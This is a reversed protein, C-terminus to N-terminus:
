VEQFWVEANQEKRNGLSTSRLEGLKIAEKIARDWESDNYKCLSAITARIRLQKWTTRGTKKATELLATRIQRSDVVEELPQNEFLMGEVCQAEVCQRRAKVMARNMLDVADPYRSGFVLHYKPYEDALKERIPYRLVWKFWRNLQSAYGAAISDVRDRQSLHEDFAFRQWYTGGAIRNAELVETHTPDFEGHRDARRRLGLVRRLFGRSMFNILTEISQGHRLQDYVVRLDEFHLDGPKIPDVYLFVTHSKALALLDDEYDQFRGQLIRVPFASDSLNMQLRQFLEAHAEIFVGLVHVGRQHLWSVWKSIILPSGLEGDKYKGAGAFCDVIAIPQALKAVKALYPELYYDLISDKYRSWPNKEDFFKLANSEPM